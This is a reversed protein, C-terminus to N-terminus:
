RSAKFRLWLKRWWPTHHRWNHARMVKVIDGKTAPKSLRLGLNAKEAARRMRRETRGM